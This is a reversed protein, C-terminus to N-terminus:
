ATYKFWIDGDSGGSPDNVSVTKAAGDWKTANAALSIGSVNITVRVTWTPSVETGTNECIEVNGGDSRILYEKGGSGTDYIRLGLADGKIKQTATFENAVALMAAGMIVLAGTTINVSLLSVWGATATYRKLTEVPAEESPNFWQLMGEFPNEAATEGRNASGLAALIAELATALESMTLPSGPITYDTVQSM